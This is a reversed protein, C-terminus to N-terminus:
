VHKSEYSGVSRNQRYVCIATSSVAPRLMGLSKHLFPPKAFHGYGTSISWFGQYRGQWSAVVGKDVFCM